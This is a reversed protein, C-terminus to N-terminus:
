TEYTWVYDSGAREYYYGVGVEIPNVTAYEYWGYGTFYEASHSQAESHVDGDPVTFTWSNGAPGEQMIVKGDTVTGNKVTIVNGCDAIAPVALLCVMLISTLAIACGDTTKKM